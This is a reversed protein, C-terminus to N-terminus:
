IFKKKLSRSNLKDILMTAIKFNNKELFLNILTTLTSDLNTKKVNYSDWMNEIDDYTYRAAHIEKAEVQNKFIQILVDTLKYTLKKLEALIGERQYKYIVTYLQERVLEFKKSDVLFDLAVEIKTLIEKLIDLEKKHPFNELIKFANKIKCASIWSTIALRFAEEVLKKELLENKTWEGAREYTMAAKVYKKKNFYLNGERIMAEIYLKKFNVSKRKDIDEVKQPTELDKTCFKVVTGYLKTDFGMKRLHGVIFSKLMPLGDDKSIKLTNASFIEPLYKRDIAIEDTSEKNMISEIKKRVSQALRFKIENLLGIKRREGSLTKDIERQKLLKFEMEEEYTQPKFETISKARGPDLPKNLLEQFEKDEPSLKNLSYVMYFLRLQQQMLKALIGSYIQKKLSSQSGFYAWIKKTDHDVLLYAKDKNSDNIIDSVVTGEIVAMAACFPSETLDVIEFAQM